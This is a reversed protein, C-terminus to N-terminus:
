ARFECRTEGNGSNTVKRTNDGWRIVIECHVTGKRNPTSPSTWVTSPGNTSVTKTARGKSSTLRTANPGWVTRANIQQSPNVWVTINYTYKTTKVKRDDNTDKKVDGGECALILAVLAALAAVSRSPKKMKM